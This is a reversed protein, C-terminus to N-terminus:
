PLIVEGQALEQGDLIFAEFSDRFNDIVAVNAQLRLISVQDDAAVQALAELADNRLGTLVDRVIPEDMIRSAQEFRYQRQQDTLQNPLQDDM